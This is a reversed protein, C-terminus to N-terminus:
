INKIHMKRILESARIMNKMSIAIRKQLLDVFVNIKSMRVFAQGLRDM